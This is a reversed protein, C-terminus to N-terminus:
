TVSDGQGTDVNHVGPGPAFGYKVTVSEELAQEQITSWFDQADQVPCRRSMAGAYAIEQSKEPAEADVLM